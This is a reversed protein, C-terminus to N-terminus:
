FKCEDSTIDVDQKVNLARLIKCIQNVCSAVSAPNNNIETIELKRILSEVEKM